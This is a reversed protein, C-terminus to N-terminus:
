VVSLTPETFSPPLSHKFSFLSLSLSLLHRLPPSALSSTPSLLLFVVSPSLLQSLPHFLSFLRIEQKVQNRVTVQNSTHVYVFRYLFIHILSPFLVLSASFSNQLSFSLTYKILIHFHAEQNIPSLWRNFLQLAKAMKSPVSSESWCPTLFFFIAGENMESPNKHLPKLLLCLTVQRLLHVIDGLLLRRQGFLYICTCMGPLIKVKGM